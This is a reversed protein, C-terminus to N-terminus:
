DPGIKENVVGGAAKELEKDTLEKSKPRIGRAPQKKEQRKEKKM